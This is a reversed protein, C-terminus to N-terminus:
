ANDNQDEQAVWPPLTLPLIGDEYGPWNNSKQCAAFQELLRQYTDWGKILTANDVEYVATLYPPANEVAVFIFRTHRRKLVSSIGALYVAAQVHYGHKYMERQFGVPSADRTSKIDVVVDVGQYKVYRDLRCKMVIGDPASEINNEEWVLSLETQGPSTLLEFAAEHTRVSHRMAKLEELETESVIVKEGADGEAPGHVNCYWMGGSQIKGGNTCRTKKGTIAECQGAIIYTDLFRQPELIVAHTADGLRFCDKEEQGNDLIYKLHAPTRPPAMRWLKSKSAAQWQHYAVENVDPYIGPPPITAVTTMPKEGKRRRRCNAMNEKHTVVWINQKQNDLGNWNKHDIVMNPPPNLILRHMLVCQKNKKGCGPMWAAAYFVGNASPMARWFKSFSTVTEYDENDVIAFMGKTLPIWRM